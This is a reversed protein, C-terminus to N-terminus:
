KLAKKLITGANLLLDLDSIDKETVWRFDTSESNIKPEENSEGSFVTYTEFEEFLQVNTPTIGAEEQCERIAAEQHSEGEEVHGGPFNWKGNDSRKLLLIQGQPNSVVISATPKSSAVKHIKM